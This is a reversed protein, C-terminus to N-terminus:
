FPKQEPGQFRERAHSSINFLCKVVDVSAIKFQKPVVSFLIEQSTSCYKKHRQVTNRTVGECKLIMFSPFRKHEELFGKGGWSM